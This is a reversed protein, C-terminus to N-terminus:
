APNTQFPFAKILRGLQWLNLTLFALGVLASLAIAPNPRFISVGVFFWGLFGSIAWAPLPFYNGRDRSQRFMRALLLGHYFIAVPIGFGPIFAAFIFQSPVWPREPTMMRLNRRLFLIVAIYFIVIALVLASFLAIETTSM